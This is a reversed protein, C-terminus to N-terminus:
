RLDNLKKYCTWPRGHLLTCEIVRTHGIADPAIAIMFKRNVQDCTISWFSVNANPTKVETGMYYPDKAICHPGIAKSLTAAQQSETMKLLKDNSPNGSSFIDFIGAAIAPSAICLCLIFPIYRVSQM